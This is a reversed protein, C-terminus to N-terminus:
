LRAVVRNVRRWGPTRAGGSAERRGPAPTGGRPVGALRRPRGGGGSGGGVPRGVRGCAGEMAAARPSSETRLQPAVMGARRGHGGGQERGSRRRWWRPGCPAERRAAASATSGRVPAARRRLGGGADQAGGGHSAARRYGGSGSLRVIKEDRLFISFYQDLM